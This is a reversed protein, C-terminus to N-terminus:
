NSLERAMFYDIEVEITLPMVRQDYFSAIFEPDIGYREGKVRVRELNDREVKLNRLKTRINERDGAIIFKSYGEPDERFKAEAVQEGMHVRRSIAQMCHIDVVAASGYKNDDGEECILPLVELYIKKIKDNVNVKRSIGLDDIRRRALAEGDIPYFPHEEQDLYRGARAHLKETGEFLYDLFSGDFGPIEVGGPVYIVKNTKFQAREFLHLIITDELRVLDKRVKSLDFEKTM